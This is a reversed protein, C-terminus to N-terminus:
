GSVESLECGQVEGTGVFRFQELHTPQALRVLIRLVEGPQRDAVLCLHQLKLGDERSLRVGVVKPYRIPRSMAGEAVPWYFLGASLSAKLNIANQQCVYLAVTIKGANVRFLYPSLM